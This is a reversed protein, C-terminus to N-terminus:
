CSRHHDDVLGGRPPIEGAIIRYAPPDREAAGRRGRAFDDPDHGIDLFARGLCWRRRTGVDWEVLPTEAEDNTRMVVFARESRQEHGADM